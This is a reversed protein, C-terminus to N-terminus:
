RDFPVCGVAYEWAEKAIRDYNPRDSMAHRKNEVWERLSMYRAQAAICAREEQRFREVTVYRNAEVFRYWWAQPRLWWLSM